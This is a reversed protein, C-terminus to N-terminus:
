RKGDQTSRREDQKTKRVTDYRMWVVIKRTASVLLFSADAFAPPGFNYDPRGSFGFGELPQGLWRTKMLGDADEDHLVSLAYKGYPVATFHVQARGSAIKVWRNQWAKETDDPFGRDESFLSVIAEGDDNRFGKIEVSLEGTKQPFTRIGKVGCGTIMVLGAFLCLVLLAVKFSAPLFCHQDKSKHFDPTRTLNLINHSM